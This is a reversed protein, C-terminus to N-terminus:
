KATAKKGTAKRGAAAVKAPAAAPAPEPAAAPIGGEPLGAYGTQLKIGSATCHAVFAPCLMWGGAPAAVVWPLRKGDPANWGNNIDARMFERTHQNNYATWSELPNSVPKGDVVPLPTSDPGFGQLM